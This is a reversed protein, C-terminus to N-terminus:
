ENVKAEFNGCAQDNKSTFRNMEECFGKGGRLACQKCKKGTGKHLIGADIMARTMANM